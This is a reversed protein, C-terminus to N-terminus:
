IPEKHPSRSDKQRARRGDETYWGKPEVYRMWTWGAPLLVPPFFTHERRKPSKGFTVWMNRSRYCPHFDLRATVGRQAPSPPIYDKLQAVLSFPPFPYQTAVLLTQCLWYWVKYQRKYEKLVFYPLICLLLRKLFIKLLPPPSLALWAPFLCLNM